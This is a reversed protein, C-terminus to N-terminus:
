DNTSCWYTGVVIGIGDVASHVHAAAWESIEVVVERFIVRPVDKIVLLGDALINSVVKSRAAASFSSGALMGCSIALPPEADGGSDTEHARRLPM